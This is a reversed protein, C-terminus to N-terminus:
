KSTEQGAVSELRDKVLLTFLALFSLLVAAAFAAETNYEKYASEVFLTLTQTQGIINGSIVSVAGFEGMARANTLIIGYLLGWRINPLTVNWFVQFDNAGLSRAAEEEAMDMQELIPLLERVVFPLTVFLTALAMGPFAFVIPFGMKAILPAFLGKRGYLLVFMMGTIVPSISFPLDLLSIIFTKGWFDNRALYLASQVGFATNIPVAVLSLLLTMKVAQQFDPEQVTEIFPGFGHGFAQFFVNIFPVIVILMMFTVSIGVLVRQGATEVKRGGSGSHGLNGGGGGAAILLDGRQQRPPAQQLQRRHM